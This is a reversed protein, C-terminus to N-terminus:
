KGDEVATKEATEDKAKPKTAPKEIADAAAALTAGLEALEVGGLHTTRPFYATLEKLKHRPVQRAALKRAIFAGSNGKYGAATVLKKYDM